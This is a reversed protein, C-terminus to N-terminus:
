YGHVNMRVSSEKVLMASGRLAGVEHRQRVIFPCLSLRRVAQKRGAFTFAQEGALLQWGMDSWGAAAIMEMLLRLSNNQFLTSLVPLLYRPKRGAKQRKRHSAVYKKNICAAPKKM